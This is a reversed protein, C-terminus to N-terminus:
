PMHPLCHLDKLTAATAYASHPRTNDQQLVVDKSLLGRRKSKIAHRRHNVILDTYKASTGTSRRPMFHELIIGREACVYVCFDLMVKGAPPQRCVDETEALFSPAM